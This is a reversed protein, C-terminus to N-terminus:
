LHPLKIQLLNSTKTNKIVKYAREEARTQGSFYLSLGSCKLVAVEWRKGVPQITNLKFRM